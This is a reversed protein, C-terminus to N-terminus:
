EISKGRFAKDCGDCKYLKKKHIKLEQMIVSPNMYGNGYINSVSTQVCPPIRQLPSFSFSNNVSREVEYYESIIRGTQFIQLKDQFNFGFRNGFPKIGADKIERSGRGNPVNGNLSVPTGKYNKKDDRGQCEFDCMNEESEWLHFHKIECSEPRGLMLTQFTELKDSNVELQLHKIVHTPSIDVFYFSDYTDQECYNLFLHKM